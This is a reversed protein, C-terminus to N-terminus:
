MCEIILPMFFLTCMHLVGVEVLYLVLPCEQFKKNSHTPVLAESAWHVKIIPKIQVHMLGM